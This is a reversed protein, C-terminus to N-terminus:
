NKLRLSIKKTDYSSSATKQDSMLKGFNQARVWLSPCKLDFLILERIKVFNRMYRIQLTTSECRANTKSFKSGLDWFKPM